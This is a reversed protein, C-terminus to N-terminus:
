GDKNSLIKVRRGEIKLRGEAFLQIARSYMEHEHKIIRQSLSDVTDDDYVIVAEQLIIPGTDVGEDVYHVTCGTIKAGYKFAQEQAHLGKFSPLLAPHINMIRGRFAYLLAKKLIRMFGALAVLQVGKEQLLKIYEQEADGVLATKKETCPIFYGEVGYEEAIKLARADEKDSIVVVVEADLEGAKCHKLIAELNSGRGSVLIGVSLKM